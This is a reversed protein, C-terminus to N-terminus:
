PIEPLLCDFHGGVFLFYTGPDEGRSFKQKKPLCKLENIFFREYRFRYRTRYHIDDIVYLLYDSGLPELRGLGSYGTLVPYFAYGGENAKSNMASLDPASNANCGPSFVYVIAKEDASLMSLLDGASVTYIAGPNLPEQAPLPRIQSRQIKSLQDYDSTLGSVTCSPMVPALCAPVIM